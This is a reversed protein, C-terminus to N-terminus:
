RGCASLMRDAERRAAGPSTAVLVVHSGVAVISSLVVGAAAGEPNRDLSALSAGIGIAAGTDLVLFAAGGANNKAYFHGAGMGLIGSLLVSAAPNPMAAELRADSCAGTTQVRYRPLQAQLLAIEAAVPDEEEAALEEAIVERRSPDGIDPAAEDELRQLRYRAVGVLEIPVLAKRMCAIDEETVPYSLVANEVAATPVGADLMKMVEECANIDDAVALGMLTWLM